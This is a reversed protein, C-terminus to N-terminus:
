REGLKLILGLEVSNVSSPISDHFLGILYKEVAGMFELRVLDIDETLRFEFISLSEIIEPIEHIRKKVKNKAKRSIFKKAKIHKLIFKEAKDSIM